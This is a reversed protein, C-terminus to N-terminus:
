LKSTITLQLLDQADRMYSQWGFAKWYRKQPILSVNKFMGLLRSGSLTNSFPEKNLRTHCVHRVTRIFLTVWDIFSQGQGNISSKVFVVYFQNAQQMETKRLAPASDHVM